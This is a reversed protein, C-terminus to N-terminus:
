VVDSGRLGDVLGLQVAAHHSAEDVRPDRGSFAEIPPAVQRRVPPHTRDAGVRTRNMHVQWEALWKDTDGTLAGPRGLLPFDRLRGVRETLATVFEVAVTPKDEAIRDAVRKLDALARRTWRLKM